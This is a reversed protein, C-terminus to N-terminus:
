VKPECPWRLADADPIDWHVTARWDQYSQCLRAKPWWLRLIANALREEHGKDFRSGMVDLVELTDKALLCIEIESSFLPNKEQRADVAIALKKLGPCHTAIYALSTLTVHPPFSQLRLRALNPWAEIMQQLRHDTVEDLPSDTDGYDLDFAQLEALNLTPELAKWAFRKRATLQLRVLHPRFRQLEATVERYIEGGRWDESFLAVRALHGSGISRLLTHIMAPGGSATLTTLSPFGMDRPDEGRHGTGEEVDRVDLEELFPLDKARAVLDRIAFFERIVLRRLHTQSAIAQLGVDTLASPKWKFHLDLQELSVTENEAIVRLASILPCDEAPM